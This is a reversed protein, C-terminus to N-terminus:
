YAGKPQILSQIDLARVEITLCFHPFYLAQINLRRVLEIGFIERYLIGILVASMPYTWILGIFLPLMIVFIILFMALLLFFVKFWRRTIAKRSAEMAQWPALKKEAILPVVLLYAQSLYIGPIIFLMFGIAAILMSLIAAVIIPISVDLYGFTQGVTVPLDAARHVGQMIVGTLFPYIAATIVLQMIFQFLMGGQLPPTKLVLDLVIGTIALALLVILAGGWFPGKLGRTKIWAKRLVATISFDYNGAIGDQLNGGAPSIRDDVRAVPPRFPHKSSM